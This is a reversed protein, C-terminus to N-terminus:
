SGLLANAIVRADASTWNESPFSELKRANATTRSRWWHRVHRLHTMQMSTFYIWSGRINGFDLASMAELRARARADEDMLAGRILKL